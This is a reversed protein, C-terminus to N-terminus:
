IISQLALRVSCGCMLSFTPSEFEAGLSTSTPMSLFDFSSLNDYSSEYGMQTTSYLGGQPWSVCYLRAQRASIGHVPMCRNDVIPGSAGSHNGILIWRRRFKEMEKPIMHVDKGYRCFVPQRRLSISRKLQSRVQLVTEGLFIMEKRTDEVILDQIMFWKELEGGGGAARLHAKWVTNEKDRTTGAVSEHTVNAILDYLTSVDTPTSDVDELDSDTHPYFNRESFTVYM